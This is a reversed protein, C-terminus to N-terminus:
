NKNIVLNDLINDWYFKSKIDEDIKSLGNFYQSPNDIIQQWKDIDEFLFINYKFIVNRTELLRTCVVNVGSAIYFSNKTPYCLNYYFKSSDYHILGYDCKTVIRMTEAEDFSGLYIINNFNTLRSKLWEGNIGILFLYSSSNKFLTLLEDVGRGEALTGVYVYKSSYDTYSDLDVSTIGPTLRPAGNIIVQSYEKKINYKKLVYKEMEYSAFIYNIGLDCNFITKQFDEYFVELKLGLDKAQEFPLDNIEIYFINRKCLRKIYKVFCYYGLKNRLIVKPFINFITGMHLFVTNGKLFFSRYFFLILQIARKFLNADYLNYIQADKKVFYDYFAKNRSMGGDNQGMILHGIYILKNM